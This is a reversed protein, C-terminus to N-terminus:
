LISLFYKLRAIMRKPGLVAMLQYLGPGKTKGTLALRIPHIAAGLTELSLEMAQNKVWLECESESIEQFSILHQKLNELLLSIHKHNKWKELATPDIEPQDVVFFDCVTGLDPLVQIREQELKLIEEVYLPNQVLENRLKQNSEALLLDKNELYSFTQPHNVYKQYAEKFESLNKKRIHQGNIWTLKDIDFIGSSPQIGSIDFAEAMEDLSMIEKNSGPSWGILAIFNALAEPLYGALQYDFCRTDGHRKSLKSGDKGKIVPCHVFYPRKWGFADFLFAHKPASSIWEEGRIIHTIDMLHDDVMAAFHYTPMGDAKIIVPDDITNSDWEIRGRIEDEIVIKTNRPMRLRIVGLKGSQKAQETQSLSADRWSGGFYGISQKNVQQFERMEALEESTDFAWYAHGLDLIKEVWKQYIGQHQRESQHYPGHPGGVEVGEQWEIGLWKLSEIIEKECGPVFRARDTDEIRLIHTGNHHKAFLFKFLADRMNGIHPSGTPSPAYRVRVSMRDDLTGFKKLFYNLYIQKELVNFYGKILFIM